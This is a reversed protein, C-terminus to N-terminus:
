LGFALLMHLFFAKSYSHFVCKEADDGDFDLGSASFGAQPDPENPLGRFISGAGTVVPHQRHRDAYIRQAEQLRSMDM